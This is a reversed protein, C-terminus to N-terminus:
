PQFQKRSRMVSSINELSALANRREQSHPASRSLTEAVEHFLSQLERENRRALEFITILHM